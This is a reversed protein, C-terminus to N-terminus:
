EGLIKIKNALYWCGGQKEPRNIKKYDQIAVKMWIRDKVSLHPAIPEKLCHWFPRIKYGKTPHNEAELWVNKPLNYSKNIFLSTIEGSKKLRFLKYAIKYM